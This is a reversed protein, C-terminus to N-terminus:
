PISGPQPLPDTGGRAVQEDAAFAAVREWVEDDSVGQLALSATDMVHEIARQQALDPDQSRLADLLVQHQRPYGVVDSLRTVIRFVRIQLRHDQLCRHLRNHRACEWIRGHFEQDLDLLQRMDGERDAAEMLRIVDKLFQIDAPEINSCAHKAALGELVSRLTAVEWLDRKQWKAVFTGKRPVRVALGQKVLEALAERVPARSIGMRRALETENLQEGAQATGALIAKSLVEFVEEPLAKHGLEMPPLDSVGTRDGIM